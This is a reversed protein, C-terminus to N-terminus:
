VEDTAYRARAAVPRGGCCGCLGEEVALAARGAAEARAAARRMGVELLEAEARQADAGMRAQADAHAASQVYAPRLANHLLSSSLSLTASPGRGGHIAASASASALRFHRPLLLLGFAFLVVGTRFGAARYALLYVASIVFNALQATISALLAGHCACNWRALARSILPHSQLVSPGRVGRAPDTRRARLAWPPQQPDVAFATALWLERLEVLVEASLCVALTAANVAEAAAWLRRAPAALRRGGQPVFSLLLSSLTAFFCTKLRRFASCLFRTRNARALLQSRLLHLQVVLAERGSAKATSPAPSSDAVQHGGVSRSPTFPSRYRARDPSPDASSEPATRLAEVLEDYAALQAPSAFPRALRMEVDSELWCAESSQGSAARLASAAVPMSSSRLVVGSRPGSGPEALSRARPPREVSRSRAAQAAQEAQARTDLLLFDARSAAARELERDPRV